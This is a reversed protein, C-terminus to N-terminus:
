RLLNHNHIAASWRIGAAVSLLIRAPKKAGIRQLLYATVLPIASVALNLGLAISKGGNRAFLQNGEKGGRAIAYKTTVIDATTGALYLVSLVYFPKDLKEVSLFIRHTPQSLKDFDVLPLPLLQVTAPTEQIPATAQAPFEHKEPLELILTDTPESFAPTEVKPSIEANPSSVVPKIYPHVTQGHAEVAAFLLVLLFAFAGFLSLVLRNHKRAGEPTYCM